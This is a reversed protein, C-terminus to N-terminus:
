LYPLSQVEKLAEEENMFYVSEPDNIDENGGDIEEEYEEDGDYEEIEEDDKSNGIGIITSSETPSLVSELPKGNVELESMPSRWFNFDNFDTDGTGNITDIPPFIQDVIDNLKMYSSKYTSLLELKIEGTPDITFIRSSPIDVSRYSLADTIRNGFGAYFPNKEGWLRKIDRLCAIKFEEPKKIVVERHLARFLRDPSMIVPGEPLQYQEQQINKLYDRTYSAQGIARSTLYLIMYGNKRINTYLNAVGSHTWDRGVMTFMHGLVDSKTITGDIDSIVIKTDCDWFFIRSSTTAKEKHVTFSVHNVGKQLNLNKLQDSTLRLSKVYQKPVKKVDEPINVEVSDKIEVKTDSSREPSVARSADGSNPQSLAEPPSKKEDPKSTPSTPTIEDKKSNWGWLGFGTFTSNKKTDDVKSPPILKKISDVPLKKGFLSHAIIIPLATTANFYRGNIRYVINPDSLLTPNECLAEYNVIHNKFTEDAIKEEVKLLREFGCMSAEVQIDDEKHELEDLDEQKVIIRREPKKLGKLYESVLEQRSLEPPTTSEQSEPVEEDPVRLRPNFTASKAPPSSPPPQHPLSGWSWIWGSSSPTPKTDPFRYEVDTDSSPGKSRVNGKDDVDVENDSFPYEEKIDAKEKDRELEETEFGAISSSRIRRSRLLELTPKNVIFLKDKEDTPIDDKQEVSEGVFTPNSYLVNEEKTEIIEPLSEDLELPITVENSIEPNSLELPRETTIKPFDPSVEITHLPINVDDLPFALNSSVDLPNASTPSLIEESVIDSDHASVYGNVDDTENVHSPGLQLPEIPSDVELDDHPPNIPSTALPSPPTQDTEVVFFAEGAEGLKMFYGTPVGNVSIEVTKEQPHLLKLKGFRVHFPSCWFSGDKREVVIIDIAGSLTAPNIGQTFTIINSIQNVTTTKDIAIRQKTKDRRFQKLTQLSYIDTLAKVMNNFHRELNRIELFFNDEVFFGNALSSFDFQAVREMDRGINRLPTTIVLFLIGSIICGIAAVVGSIIAGFRMAGDIDGFYERRPIALVLVFRDDTGFDLPIFSTMWRENADSTLQLEQILSLDTTSSNLTVAQLSIPTSTKIDGNYQTMVMRGLEAIIPDPADVVNVFDFNTSDTLKINQNSLVLKKSNGIVFIRSSQTPTIDNFIAKNARMPIACFFPMASQNYIGYRDHGARIYSFFTDDLAIETSWIPKGRPDDIFSVMNGYYWAAKTPHVVRGVIEFRPGSQQGTLPDVMEMFVYSSNSYDGFTVWTGPPPADPAPNELKPNNMFMILTMNRYNAMDPTKASLPIQGTLNEKQFCNISLATPLKELTKFASITLNPHFEYGTTERLMMNELEANSMFMELGNAVGSLMRNLKDVSSKITSLSIQTTLHDITQTSTSFVLACTPIISGCLVAILIFLMFVIFPMGPLKGKKTQKGDGYKTLENIPLKDEQM